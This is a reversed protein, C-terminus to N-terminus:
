SFDILRGVKVTALDLRRSAVELRFTQGMFPIDASEPLVGDKWVQGAFEEMVALVVSREDAPIATSKLEPLGIKLFGRTQVSEEEGWQVWCVRLHQDIREQNPVQSLRSHFSGSTMLWESVSDFVAVGSGLEAVADALHPMFQLHRRDALPQEAVYRLKAVARADGLAQLVEPTLEVTSAFLDPRFIHANRERRAIGMHLRIDSFLMGERAGICPRGPRNHPNESIMRNMIAEIRPLKPEPLYVWYEIATVQGTKPLRRRLILLVGM